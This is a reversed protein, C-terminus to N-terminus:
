GATARAAPFQKLQLQCKILNLWTSADRPAAEAAKQFEALPSSNKGRSMLVLGLNTDQPTAPVYAFRRKSSRLQKLSTEWAPRTSGLDIHAAPSQPQLQVAKQFRRAADAPQNQEDLVIGLLMHARFDTPEAELRNTLEQQAWAFKREQIAREVPAYDFTSAILSTVPLGFILIAFGFLRAFTSRPNMAAQSELPKAM